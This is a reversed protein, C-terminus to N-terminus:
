VARGIEHPPFVPSQCVPLALPSLLSSLHFSLNRGVHSRYMAASIPSMLADNLPTSFTATDVSAETKEQKPAAVEGTHIVTIEPSVDPHRDRLLRTAAVANDTKVMMVVVSDDAGNKHLRKESRLRVSQVSASELLAVGVKRASAEDDFVCEVVSEMRESM